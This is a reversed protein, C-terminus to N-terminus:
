ICYNIIINYIYTVILFSIQGVKTGNTFKVNKTGAYIMKKEILAGKVNPDM